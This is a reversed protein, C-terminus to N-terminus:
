GEQECTIEATKPCCFRVEFDACGGENEDNNCWFGWDLSVHTVATSGSSRAQAELAIPNQCVEDTSYDQLTEYDGNETPDDRDLFDTWEYGDEDCSGQM